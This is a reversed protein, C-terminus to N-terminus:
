ASRGLMSPAKIRGAEFRRGSKSCDSACPRLAAIDEDLEHEKAVRLFQETESKIRYEYNLGDFPMAQKIVYLDPQRSSFKHIFQVIGVFLLNRPQTM